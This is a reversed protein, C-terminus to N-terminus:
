ASPDLLPRHGGVKEAVFLAFAEAVEGLVRVLSLEGSVEWQILGRPAPSPRSRRAALFRIPQATWSPVM